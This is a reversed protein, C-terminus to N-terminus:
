LNARAVGVTYEEAPLLEAFSWVMADLRDPSAKTDGPLWTRMQDELEPFVGVHHIRHQQYLSAVPEARKHKGRTATVSKYPLNASVTRLNREDPIM